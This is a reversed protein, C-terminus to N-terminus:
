PVTNDPGIGRERVIKGQLVSGDSKAVHGHIPCQVIVRNPRDLPSHPSLIMYSINRSSTEAWKTAETKNTDSPCTLYRPSITQNLALFDAPFLNDHAVAWQRAAGGVQKLNDVCWIKQIEDKEEPSQAQSVIGKWDPMPGGLRGDDATSLPPPAPATPREQPAPAAVTSMQRNIVVASAGGLLIAATAVLATKTKTWAMLTLTAKILASTSTTVAAGQGLVTTTLTTTFGVPVTQIAHAALTTVLLATPTTV